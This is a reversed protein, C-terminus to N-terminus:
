TASRTPSPSRSRTRASARSSTTWRPVTPRRAMGSTGCRRSRRGTGLRSWNVSKGAYGTAPVSLDALGPAGGDLGIGQVKSTGNFAKWVVVANGAADRAVQTPLLVAAGNSLNTVSCWTGAASLTRAQVVGGSAWVATSEGGGSALSITGATVTEDLASLPTPTSWAGGPSRFAGRAFLDATGDKQLWVAVERAGTEISVRADQASTTTDAGAVSVPVPATLTGSDATGDASQIALTSGNNVRWTAVRADAVNVAVAPQDLTGVGSLASVDRVSGWSGGSHKRSAM